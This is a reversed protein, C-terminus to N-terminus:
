SVGTGGNEAFVRYPVGTLPDALNGDLELLHRLVFMRRTIRPHPVCLRESNVVMDGYLLIDLDIARPGGAVPGRVRGLSREIEMLRDLLEVPALATEARVVQNLFRPQDTVDVPETEEIASEATIRAAGREVMAKKAADILASRDGMNSGIGIYVTTM